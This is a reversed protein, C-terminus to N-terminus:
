VTRTCYLVFKRREVRLEQVSGRVDPDKMLFSSVKLLYNCFMFYLISFVMMDSNSFCVLLIFIGCSFSGSDSVWQEM